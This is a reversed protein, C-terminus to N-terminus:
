QWPDSFAPDHLFEDDTLSELFAELDAREGASLAFKRIL